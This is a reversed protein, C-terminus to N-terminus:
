PRTGPSPSPQTVSAQVQREIAGDRYNKAVVAVVLLLLLV